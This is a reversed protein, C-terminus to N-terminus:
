VNMKRTLHLLAGAHTQSHYVLKTDNEPPLSSGQPHVIQGSTVHKMFSFHGFREFAVFRVQLRAPSDKATHLILEADNSPQLSGGRPYVIKGTLRHFIYGIPGEMEFNEAHKKSRLM